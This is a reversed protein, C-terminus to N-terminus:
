ADYISVDLINPGIFEPKDMLFSCAVVRGDPLIDM